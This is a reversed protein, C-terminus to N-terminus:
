VPVPEQLFLDITIVFTSCHAKTSGLCSRPDLSPSFADSFVSYLMSKSLYDNEVM